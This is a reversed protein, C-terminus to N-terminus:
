FSEENLSNNQEFNSIKKGVYTSIVATLEVILEAEILEPTQGETLHRGKESSYGWVKTVAIDLPPPIIKPYKKMLEGLTLKKDGTAERIVCELCALSHQIAGTIDPNPRRSLDNLAESIESKATKLNATELVAVVNNIATEFVKDGRKEILGNTIKWGIGNKKFYENIEMSFLSSEQPKLKQIINEIIEYILYWDCNEIYKNVEYDINPFESWNDPDPPVKLVWCVIERLESPNKNLSYFVMKIFRRLELPADNRVIIEKEIISYLGLRKSFSEKDQM